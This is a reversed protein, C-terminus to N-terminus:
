KHLKEAGYNKCFLYRCELVAQWWPHITRREAKDNDPLRLSFWEETLYEWMAAIKEVLDDLTNIRYQKLFPRRLQFEVRWVGEPDDTKWLPLFWQKNSKLIEKGKNYIRLQVPSDPSGCYYTELNDGDLIAWTKRSRSVRLADLFPLTLPGDIRFDVCLDCRSPQVRHLKGGFHSLDCEILNLITILGVHWITESSISLYVNPSTGFNESIALYIHYEPFQLHYRYNPPKGSPLHLFERGIDTADLLGKTGQAQEKKADLTELNKKWNTEWTVYLGLDLTDVGCLLFTFKEVPPNQAHRTVSSAMSSSVGPLEDMSGASGSVVDAGGPTIIACQDRADSGHFHYDQL